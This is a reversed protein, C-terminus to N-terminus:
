TQLSLNEFTIYIYIYFLKWNPGLIKLFDIKRCINPWKKKLIVGWFQWYILNQCFLQCNNYSSRPSSVWASMNAASDTKSTSHHHQALAFHKSIFFSFRIQNGHCHLCVLCNWWFDYTKQFGQNKPICVNIPKQM